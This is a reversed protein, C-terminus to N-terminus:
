LAPDLNHKNLILIKTDNLMHTKRRFGSMVDLSEKFAMGPGGSAGLSAFFRCHDM